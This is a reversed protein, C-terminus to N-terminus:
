KNHFQMYTNKQVQIQLWNSDGEYYRANVLMTKAKTAINDEKISETYKIDWCDFTRKKNDATWNGTITAGNPTTLVFTTEYFTMIYKANSSPSTIKDGENFFSLTWSHSSFIDNLDDGNDCSTFIMTLTLLALIIKTKM